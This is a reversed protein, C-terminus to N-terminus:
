INVIMNLRLKFSFEVMSLIFHLFVSWTHSLASIRSSQSIAIDTYTSIRHYASMHFCDMWKRESNLPSGLFM